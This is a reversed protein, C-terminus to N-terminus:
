RYRGEADTRAYVDAGDHGHSSYIVAMDAAPRRGEATSEFIVGSLVPSEQIRPIVGHRVLEIEVSTAGDVTPHVASVQFLESQNWLGVGSGAYATIKVARQPLPLVSFRGNADSALEYWPVYGYPGDLLDVVFVRAGSIPRRGAGTNEFVTGNL